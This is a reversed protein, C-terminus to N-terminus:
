LHKGFIAGPLAEGPHKGHRADRSRVQVRSGPLRRHRQISVLINGHPKQFLHLPVDAAKVAQPMKFYVHGVRRLLQLFDLRLLQHLQEHLLVGHVPSGQRPGPPFPVAIVQFNGEPGVALGSQLLGDRCNTSFQRLPESLGRNEFDERGM